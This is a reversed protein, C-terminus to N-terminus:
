STEQYDPDKTPVEIRYQDEGVWNGGTGYHLLFRKAEEKTLVLQKTGPAPQSTAGAWVFSYHGLPCEEVPAQCTQCLTKESM